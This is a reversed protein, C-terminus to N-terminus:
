ANGRRLGKKESFSYGNKRNAGVLPKCSLPLNQAGNKHQLTQSEPVNRRRIFHLSLLRSIEKNMIEDPAYGSLREFARNIQLIKRKLGDCIVTWGM